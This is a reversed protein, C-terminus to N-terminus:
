EKKLNQIIKEISTNNTNCFTEITKNIIESDYEKKCINKMFDEPTANPHEKVYNMIQDFIEEILKDELLTNSEKSESNSTADLDIVNELVNEDEVVYDLEYDEINKTNGTNYDVNASSVEKQEETSSPTPTDGTSPQKTHTTAEYGGQNNNSSDVPVTPQQGTSANQRTTGTQEVTSTTSNDSATSSTTKNGSESDIGKNIKAVEVEKDSVIQAKALDAASKAVDASTTVATQLGQAASSTGANLVDRLQDLGTINDFKPTQKNVLASILDANTVPVAATAGQLNLASIDKTSKGALYDHANLYSSDIEMKDIPSDQWNWFRTLDIKESVNTEGLVAEGIMGDTPLSITTSPARFNSSHYRYLSDQVEAATKGLKNALSQPYTFPLLMCNGYFGLLKKVNVCNLLPIDISNADYSDGSDPDLNSKFKNYNMDITYQELLMAREDASLAGWVMQSYHLTDAAVHQLLEEMKQFETYRLVRIKSKINIRTSNNLQSSSLAVDLTANNNFKLNVTDIIPYGLRMINSPSFTVIKNDPYNHYSEPLQSKYHIIDRMDGWSGRNDQAYDELKSELNKFALLQQPTLEGDGRKYLNYSYENCYYDFKIYSLDDDVIDPSIRFKCSYEKEGRKRRENIIAERLEKTTEYKEEKIITAMDRTDFDGAISGKGNKLVLYISLNDINYLLNAKFTLTLTRTDTGIEEMKWIPYSAYQRILNLGSRYRYPLAYQLSNAYKLLTGYRENFQTKDFDKLKTTDFHYDQKPKDPLFRITKLPVFLVLDISDICTEIRYRRMVEWYQITMAHSHNHNAIIKTAVSDSVESTATSISIRKAQSIKDSASKISHQFQQAASSAENHSNSQRASSSGKGSSKSFGGSLGLTASAGAYTGAAGFSAGFSSTKASYSYDSNAQSLQNVAYNFAASTDDEQSLMYDESVADTGQAEDMISYRQKNERIVLRQEEGPALVLSYLLSGLAFGDPVWAQHMNLVYGIGLSSMQPHIEPDDYLRSKFEEVDLPRNLTQRGSKSIAPEVLRQLMNYNFVRSPATDTSLRVVGSEEDNSDENYPIGKRKRELTRKYKDVLDMENGMLKVSPLATKLSIDRGEFIEKIVVFPTIKENETVTEGLEVELDSLSSIFKNFADKIDITGKDNNLIEDRLTFYRNHLAKIQDDLSAVGKRENGELLEKAQKLKLEYEYKEKDKLNNGPKLKKELWEKFRNAEIIQEELFDIKDGISDLLHFNNLEKQQPIADLIESASKIFVQKNSGQSITITITEKFSYRDPMVVTFRGDGGTICSPKKDAETKDEAPSVVGGIEVLAGVLPEGNSRTDSYRKILVTGKIIRPLPLREEVEDIFGLGELIINGSMKEDLDKEIYDDAFLHVPERDKFELNSGSPMRDKLEKLIDGTSIQQIDGINTIPKKIKQNLVENLINIDFARNAINLEKANNILTSTQSKGLLSFDTKSAILSELIPYIKDVSVKSLDEVTRVGALVFLYAMDTTMEEVRWLDAQKVWSNVLKVDVQLKAALSFRKKETSGKTLLTPIDYIFLSRLKAQMVKSIGKIPILSSSPKEQKDLDKIISDIVSAKLGPLNELPSNPSWKDYFTGSTTAEPTILEFQELYEKACKLEDLTVRDEFPIAKNTVLKKIKKVINAETLDTIDFLKSYFSTQLDQKNQETNSM